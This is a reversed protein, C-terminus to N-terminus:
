GTSLETLTPDNLLCNLDGVTCNCSFINMLVYYERIYCVTFRKM